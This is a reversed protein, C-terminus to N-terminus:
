KLEKIENWKKPYCAEEVSLVLKCDNSHNHDGCINCWGEDESVKLQEILVDLLKPSATYLRGNIEDVYCAMTIKPNDKKVVFGEDEAHLIYVLDSEIGLEKLLKSM